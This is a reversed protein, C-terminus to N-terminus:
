RQRYVLVLTDGYDLRRAPLWDVPIVATSSRIGRTLAVTWGEALWGRTLAGLVDGLEPDGAEYPPDAVIVEFPTAPDGARTLFRRVESAVVRARDAVQARVLNDRIARLALRHREVLVASAAGRSLAEIALAGTGAYLDLVRTGAISAGLSSFLGERARDSVPRVGAPVPALRIGKATGAIVRM